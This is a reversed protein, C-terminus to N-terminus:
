KPYYRHGFADVDSFPYGFRHHRPRLDLACRVAEAPDLESEPLTLEAVNVAVRQDIQGEWALHPVLQDSLSGPGM